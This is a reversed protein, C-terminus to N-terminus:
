ANVMFTTDRFIETQAARVATGDTVIFWYQAGDRFLSACLTPTLAAGTIIFQWSGAIGPGPRSVYATAGGIYVGAVSLTGSAATATSGGTLSLFGTFSGSTVPTIVGTVANIQSLYVYRAFTNGPSFTQSM